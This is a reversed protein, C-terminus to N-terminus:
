EAPPGEGQDAGRPYSAHHPRDKQRHGGTLPHDGTLMVVKVGATHCEKIAQPVEARPLGVTDAPGRLDTIPSCMDKTDVLDEKLRDKQDKNLAEEEALTHEMSRM